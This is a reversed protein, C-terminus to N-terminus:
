SKIGTKKSLLLLVPYHIDEEYLPDERKALQHRSWVLPDYNRLMTVSFRSRAKSCFLELTNKRCPAMVIALGSENLLADMVHVLGSQCQTFFLCDASIIFDFKFELNSLNANEDWILSQCTVLTSGFSPQNRHIIARMNEVCDYNGDTLVVHFPEAFSALFIGALGTMGAGLECVTKGNLQNKNKVLYYTLVEESPWLCVNGTNDFGTLDELIVQRSRQKVLMPKNVHSGFLRYDTWEYDGESELFTKSFLNFGSFRRVSVNINERGLAQKNIVSALLKWRQRAKRQWDNAM